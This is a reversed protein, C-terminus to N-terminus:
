LLFKNSGRYVPFYRYQVVRFRNKLIKTLILNELNKNMEEALTFLTFITGGFDMAVGLESNEPRMDAKIYGTHYWPKVHLLGQELLQVHMHVNQFKRIKKCHVNHTVDLNINKAVLKFANNKRQQMFQRARCFEQMLALNQFDYPTNNEFIRNITIKQSTNIKSSDDKKERQTQKLLLDVDILSLVDNV